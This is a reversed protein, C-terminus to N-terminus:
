VQSEQILQSQKRLRAIGNKECLGREPWCNADMRGDAFQSQKCFLGAQLSAPLREGPVPNAKNPMVLHASLPPNSVRGFLRLASEPVPNAKNRVIPGESRIRLDRLNAKNRVTRGGGACPAAWPFQSQKACRMRRWEAPHAALLVPSMRRLNALETHNRCSCLRVLSVRFFPVAVEVVPITIM